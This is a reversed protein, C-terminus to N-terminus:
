ETKVIMHRGIRACLTEFARKLSEESRSELTIIVRYEPNNVYPYSGISVDCHERVVAHLTGAVVSEHANLFIRKLLIPSSGFKERIMSFKSRVYEPIGPFIYINKFTVVPFRMNKYMVVESGEPVESMKLLAENLDNNFRVSLMGLIESNRVLPVDFGRAIGTMTVDDHTPGVGGTTFVYSYNESFGRAEKAIVDVEDPIISIRQVQIGLSWLESSLYFSNTDRVKGSLIENGIIIIGATRVRNKM